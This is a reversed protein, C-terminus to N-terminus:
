EKLTKIKQLYYSQIIMSTTDHLIVMDKFNLPDSVEIPM